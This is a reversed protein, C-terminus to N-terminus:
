ILITLNVKFQEKFKVRHDFGNDGDSIDNKIIKTEKKYYKKRRLGNSNNLLGM